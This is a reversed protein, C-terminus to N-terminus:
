GRAGGPARRRPRGPARRTKRVENLAEKKRYATGNFLAV